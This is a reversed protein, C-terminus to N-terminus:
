FPASISSSFYRKYLSDYPQHRIFQLESIGPYQERPLVVMLRVNWVRSFDLAKEAFHGAIELSALVGMSM